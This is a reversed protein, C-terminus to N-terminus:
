SCDQVPLSSGHLHLSAFEVVALVKASSLVCGARSEGVTALHMRLVGNGDFRDKFMQRSASGPRSCAVNKFNSNPRSPPPVSGTVVEVRLGRQRDGIQRRSHDIFGDCAKSFKAEGHGPLGGVGCVEWESITGEVHDGRVVHQIM